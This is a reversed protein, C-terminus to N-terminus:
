LKFTKPPSDAKLIKELQSPYSNEGGIYTTSEGICLVVYSPRQNFAIRNHRDQIYVQLFGATRLGIEILFLSFLIALGYLLIKENFSPNSRSSKINM